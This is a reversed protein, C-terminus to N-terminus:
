SIGMNAMYLDRRFKSQNEGVWDVLGLVPSGHSITGNFDSVVLM